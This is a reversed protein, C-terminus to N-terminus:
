VVIKRALKNIKKGQKLEKMTMPSYAVKKRALKNEGQKMEKM